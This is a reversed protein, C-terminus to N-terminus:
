TSLGEQRRPDPKYAQFQPGALLGSVRAWRQVDLLARAAAPGGGLAVVGTPKRGLARGISEKDPGDVVLVTQAFAAVEGRSRESLDRARVVARASGAEIARKSEDRGPSLQGARLALGLKELAEAQLTAAVAAVLAAPQAVIGGPTVEFARAFGGREVAQAVCKASACVNAGRGPLKGRVDLHVAGDPARVFRLAEDKSSLARCAVCTRTPVTDGRV